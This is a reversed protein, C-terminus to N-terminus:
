KHEYVESGFVKVDINNEKILNYITNEVSSNLTFKSITLTAVNNCTIMSFLAKRAMNTGLSFDMKNVFESMDEPINIKGLNSFVSTMVKEGLYGYILTAIPRKIFLPIFTIKKVLSNTYTMTQDLSEKNIKEKMQKKIEVLVDDINQITSKKISIMVYLSFNRITKSPYYKRMNVPVEIKIFGDKSTSFSSAIFIFALM